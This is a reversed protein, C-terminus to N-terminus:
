HYQFDPACLMLAMMEDKTTAQSFVAQENPQLERQLLSTAFNADDIKSFDLKTGRIEGATLALAFNWRPLLQSQWFEAREPYGDPTPWQFPLQGMSHLEAQLAKGGDCKANLARLSSIAYRYPRKFKPAAQQFEPQQFLYRLTEAIQQGSETTESFRQAVRDVLALAPSDAVFRQCLKRSIFRATAPHRALRDVLEDIENIGKPTLHEGLVLKATDDHQSAEFQVQGRWFHKKLQWGTLTRATEMVDAQTYGGDVGLTHLELLERAYNENPKGKINTQGDLYVLMAPSTASARLLDRFRGLAYPRIVERDDIVKLWGCGEKGAYINFHDSWFEVMVEQLQRESYVARLIMAQRLDDIAQNEPIEFIDPTKWQLTEIRRVLWAAQDDAITKPTLQAEIFETLGQDLVKAVDGPRPGYTLRQLLHGAQKAMESNLNIGTEPIPATAQGLLWHLRDTQCATMATTLGALSLKLFGRRSLM